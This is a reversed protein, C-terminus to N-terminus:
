LLRLWGNPTLEETTSCLPTPEPTLQGYEWCAETGELSITLPEAKMPPTQPASSVPSPPLSTLTAMAREMAQPSCLSHLSWDLTALMNMMSADIDAATWLDNCVFTSWWSSRPVNDNTYTVALAFASVTVLEAAEVQQSQSFRKMASYHRVINYSLGILDPPLLARALMDQILDVECTSPIAGTCTKEALTHAVHTDPPCTLMREYATSVSFRSMCDLEVEDYEEDEDDFVEVTEVMVGTKALPPTAFRSLPGQAALYAELDEIGDLSDCASLAPSPPLLMNIM